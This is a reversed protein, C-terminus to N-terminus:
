SNERSNAAALSSKGIKVVVRGPLNGKLESGYPLIGLMVEENERVLRLRAFGLDATSPYPIYESVSWGFNRVERIYFAQLADVGCSGTYARWHATDALDTLISEPQISSYGSPLPLGDENSLVGDIRTPFRLSSIIQTALPEFKAREEKLHVVVIYLVTLGHQLIGTWLRRADKKPLRIEAEVGNAGGMQWRASGVQKSGLAIALKAIHQNWLAEVQHQHSNWSCSVLIQGSDEGKYDSTLAASNAAFGEM